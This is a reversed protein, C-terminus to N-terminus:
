GMHMPCPQVSYSHAVIECGGDEGEQPPDFPNIYGRDKLQDLDDMWPHEPKPLADRAADVHDQAADRYMLADVENTFVKVAYSNSDEYTGCRGMVIFATATEPTSPTQM